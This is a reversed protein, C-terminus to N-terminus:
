VRLDAYILGAAAVIGVRVCRLVGEGGEKYCWGCSNEVAGTPQKSTSYGFQGVTNVLWRHKGAAVDVDVQEQAQEECVV